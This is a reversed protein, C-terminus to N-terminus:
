SGSEDPSAKKSPQEPDSRRSSRLRDRVARLAPKVWEDRLWARRGRWTRNYAIARKLPEEDLTWRRKYPNDGPGLYYRHWGRGFLRELLYRALHAGPSIDTCDADFDARLAHVNGDHILQYEMALPREDVFLLWISAWGRRFAARSLSRIFAQPGPQDLANGTARKWSRRSIEIATDLALEFRSEDGYEATIWEIRITGAKHLRNSALNISKKLSRSRANYYNSWSAELAICPNGGRDHAAISLGAKALAPLLFRCAAGRPDLYDLRLTDWDRRRALEAALAAAVREGDDPSVILDASQTDPVTLLELRRDRTHEQVPRILPLIGALRGNLEAVFLTITSDLQRWAWAASYWEHRHFLSSPVSRGALENWREELAAFAKANTVTDVQIARWGTTEVGSRIHTPESMADPGRDM